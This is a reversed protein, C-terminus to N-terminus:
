INNQVWQHLSGVDSRHLHATFHTARFKAYGEVIGLLTHQGARM